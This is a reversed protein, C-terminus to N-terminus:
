KPEKLEYTVFENKEGHWRPMAYERVVGWCVREVAEDWEPQQRYEAIWEEASKKADAASEHYEVDDGTDVFFQVQPFVLLNLQRIEERLEAITRSDAQMRATVEPDSMPDSANKTRYEAVSLVCNCHDCVGSPLYYGIGCIDCQDTTMDTTKM